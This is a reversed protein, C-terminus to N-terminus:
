ESFAEQVEEDYLRLSENIISNDPMGHLMDAYSAEGQKALSLVPVSCGYQQALLYLKKIVFYSHSAIFFQMGNRALAFIIDLFTSIATPHLASEVEDIFVVSNASLYRNSLLTDLISIKKIGESAISITFRQRDKNNFYWANSPSDYTVRGGILENLMVKCDAFAAYNRGKQPPLSLAKVLDLYTDDFGFMMDQDRSKLIVSFLSLVEKAPIFITRDRGAFKLTRELSGVKKTTDKGFRYSFATDGEFMKFELPESSGKKVLEGIGDVQFTWYLKNSLVEAVSQNSNGKGFDEVTRLASYLAKLVFSKGSSNEGIILNIKNLNNWDVSELAGYNEFIARTIM